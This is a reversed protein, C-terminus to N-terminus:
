PMSRNSRYLASISYRLRHGPPFNDMPKPQSIGLIPVDYPAELIPVYGGRALDEELTASNLFRCPIKRDYYNQVSYFEPNPGAFLDDLLIYTPSLRSALDVLPMNDPLYQLVSNSYLIDCTGSVEDNTVFMVPDSHHGSGQFYRVLTDTEIVQYSEVETDPIV